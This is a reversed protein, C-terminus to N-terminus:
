AEPGQEDGPALRVWGLMGGGFAALVLGWIVNLDLAFTVPLKAHPAWLGWALLLGGLLTFLTGIPLRIDLM